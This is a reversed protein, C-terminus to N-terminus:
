SFKILSNVYSKPSLGEVKKFLRSFYHIDQYGVMKCIESISYKNHLLLQKAKELRIATLYEVPTKGTAKKFLVRFYNPSIYFQRPIESISVDQEYHKYMYHIAQTVVDRHSDEKNVGDNTTIDIVVLSLIDLLCSRMGMHYGHPKTIFLDQLKQFPAIFRQPEQPSLLYPFEVEGFEIIPRDALEEELPISDLNAYDVKVYVEDASFDLNEGMYILDFHVAYYHFRSGEPVMCHHQVHPRMFHVDGTKLIYPQGGIQYHCTGELVFIMEYDYIVRPPVRYGYGADVEHIYRVYPAM